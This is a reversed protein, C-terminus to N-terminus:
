FAEGISIQFKTFQFITGENGDGFGFVRGLDQSDFSDVLVAVDGRFVLPGYVYRVGVGIASRVACDNRFVDNNEVGCQEGEIRSRDFTLNGAAVDNLFPPVVGIDFFTVFRVGFPTDLRLETSSLAMFNGGIPIFTGNVGLQEPALGQFGFARHSNSGGLFFREPFPSTNTTVETFTGPNNPDEVLEVNKEDKIFLAGLQLRSALVLTKKQNLPYYGRAEPLLRLYNFQGGLLKAGEHVNLSLAFGKRPNAPDDTRNYNVHQELYGLRFITNNGQLGLSQLADDAADGSLACLSDDEIIEPDNGDLFCVKVLQFTYSYGYSFAKVNLKSPDEIRGAKVDRDKMEGLLDRNIELRLPVSATLLGDDPSNFLFSASTGFSRRPSRVYPLSFSTTVNAIPAVTVDLDDLIPEGNAGLVPNGDADTIAPRDFTIATGGTASAQLKSMGGSVSRDIWSLRARLNFRSNADIEAGGGAQVRHRKVQEVTIIIDVEEKGEAFKPDVNVASFAGTDFLNEQTALLKPRTFPEGRSFTLYKRLDKDELGDTEGPRGLGVFEVKGFKCVPGTDVVFDIYAKKNLTDVQVVGRVNAQAYGRNTIRAAIEERTRSYTEYVFIDGPKLIANKAFPQSEGLILAKIEEPPNNGEAFRIENREVKIPEGEEISVWLGVEDSDVKLIKHEIVKADYYGRSQYLAEIRKIDAEFALEDFRPKKAFSFNPPLGMQLRSFIDQDSIKTNGNIDFSSVKPQERGQKRAARRAAGICGMMSLALVM